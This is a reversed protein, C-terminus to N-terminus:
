TRHSPLDLKAAIRVLESIARTEWPDPSYGPVAASHIAAEPNGRDLGIRVSGESVLIRAGFGKPFKEM